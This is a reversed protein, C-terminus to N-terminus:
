SPAIRFSRTDLMYPAILQWAIPSTLGCLVWPRNTKENVSTQFGAVSSSTVHLDALDTANSNCNLLSLAEEYIAELFREPVETQDDRPFANGATVQLGKYSIRELVREAHNLAKEKAIDTSDDWPESGIRMSFYTNALELTVYKM